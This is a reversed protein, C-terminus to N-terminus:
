SALVLGSSGGGVGLGWSFIHAGVLSAGLPREWKWGMDVGHEGWTCGMDVGHYERLMGVANGCNQWVNGHREWPMGLCEWVNGHCEWPMGMCEWSMGMANGHCKWPGGMEPYHTNHPVSYCRIDYVVHCKNQDKM